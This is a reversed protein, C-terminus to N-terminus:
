DDEEVDHVLHGFEEGPLIRKMTELDVLRDYYASPPLASDPVDAPIKVIMVEGGPNIGLQHTRVIAHMSGLARTWIAGLFRGDSFSLYFLSTKGGSERKEEELLQQKRAEREADTM